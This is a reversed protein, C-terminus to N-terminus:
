EDLGLSRFARDDDAWGSKVKVWLKLMVKQDFMREMDIRADQGIKKIRDGKDGILIRKQGEREVLILANITILKASEEFTEIEVTTDYPLEAGLQRIIKERILEAALFRMSKDTVQDEPFIYGETDPLLKVIEAELADLNTGRLASIPVIQATPLKEALTSVHPLLQQQNKCQDVKNIAIIVPCECHALQEFVGEDEKSFHDKDLVVIVVDVDKMASGAVRNMYRNLAKDANGHIGPTDVYIIQYDDTSKIGLMNHRTTQPKRSTICLKQQLFHNLLTSKGVNPRGVISVYGAKILKNM